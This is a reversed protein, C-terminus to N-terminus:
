LVGYRFLEQLLVLCVIAGFMKELSIDMGAATETLYKEVESSQWGRKEALYKEVTKRLDKQIRVLKRSATAEHFNLIGGIEKLKLNDFYYLKLILREEAELQEMAFKFAGAVDKQAENRNLIDEPNEVQTLVDSNENKESSENALNEFEHTEEIQM